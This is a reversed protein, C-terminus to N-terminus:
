RPSQGKFFDGAVARRVHRGARFASLLMGVIEAISPDTATADKEILFSMGLARLEIAHIASPSVHARWPATREVACSGRHAASMLCAPFYGRFADLASEHDAAM